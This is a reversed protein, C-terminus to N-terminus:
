GAPVSELGLDSIMTDDIEAGRGPTTLYNGVMMGNAGAYFIWSQQDRFTIERGGAVRLDGDPFIFRFLALCHLAVRTPLPKRNGLPTGPIPNLFNIPISDVKLDRLAFALEARQAWSEGMGIIGGSCVAMGAERAAVITRLKDTYTHTTIIKPFFSRATELNHHYMTFGARKLARAMEITLFGLSAHVPRRSSIAKGTRLIREFDAPRVVKKWAGVLGLVAGRDYATKSAREMVSESILPFSPVQAQHRASQACYGCDESCRGSKINIVSCKKITNGHFKYRIANAWYLLDYLEPKFSNLALLPKVEAPTLYKGSLAKKGLRGISLNMIKL